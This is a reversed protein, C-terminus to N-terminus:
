TLLIICFVFLIVISALSCSIAEISKRPAGKGYIIALIFGSLPILVCMIIFGINLHSNDKIRPPMEWGNTRQCNTIGKQQLKEIVYDWSLTAEKRNALIVIPYQSTDSLNNVTFSYMENHLNRNAITTGNSSRDYISIRYHNDVHCVEIELHQRSVYGDAINIDCDNRGVTIKYTASATPQTTNEVAILFEDITQYRLMMNKDVAKYIIAQVTNSITPVLAQASPFQDNLITNVTADNNNGKTIAHKGTLIYHLLCGLSYIDTRLDISLGNAQEPSMYGDSGIATGFSEGTPMKADKIIGFDIICVDGNPKIMINSPKIDRHIIGAAHVDRMGQLIKTMLSLAETETYAGNRTVHAEITEGPVFEMPLFLSGTKDSYPEGVIKVVYPSNIRKLANAESIFLNHFEPNCALDRSMMKLAIPINHSDRAEYVSGMGGKGLERIITYDDM